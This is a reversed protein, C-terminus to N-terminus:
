DIREGGSVEFKRDFGANRDAGSALNEPRL